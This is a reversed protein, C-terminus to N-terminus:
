GCCLVEMEVPLITPLSPSMHESCCPPKCPLLEQKDACLCTLWTWIIWFYNRIKRPIFTFKQCCAGMEFHTKILCLFSNKNESSKDALPCFSVLLTGAWGGEQGGAPSHVIWLATLLPVSCLLLVSTQPQTETRKFMFGLEVKMECVSKKFFSLDPQQRLWAMLCM